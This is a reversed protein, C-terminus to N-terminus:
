QPAEIAYPAEIQSFYNALQVPIYGELIGVTDHYFSMCSSYHAFM